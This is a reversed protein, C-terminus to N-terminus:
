LCIVAFGRFMVLTRLLCMNETVLEKLGGTVLMSKTLIVTSVNSVIQADSPANFM